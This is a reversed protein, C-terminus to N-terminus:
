FALTVSDTNSVGNDNIITVSIPWEVGQGMDVGEEIGETEPYPRVEFSLTEGDQSEVGKIIGYSTRVQNESLFGTGTITVEDGYYIEAPVVSEIKPSVTSDKKIVFFLDSETKEKGNHIEIDEYLGYPLYPVDFSVMTGNKSEVGEIAEDNFYVTNRKGFGFGHLSLRDGQDGEYSSPYALILDDTEPLLVSFGDLSASGTDIDEVEEEVVSDLSMKNLKSRTLSGVYGTGYFLGLPELVESRYLNQFRVVAASTLSGFYDTESGPAGVGNQTIQTRSDSNLLKQLEYVATGSDGVSLDYNFSYASVVGTSIIFLLLIYIYKM